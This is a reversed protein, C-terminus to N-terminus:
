RPNYILELTVGGYPETDIYVARGNGKATKWAASQSPPAGRATMQAIAADMDTVTLGLHHFGEGHKKGYEVYIDPGTIQQVWERPADGTRDWGLWMEYTGPQGRYIRDLMKAHDISAFPKFGLNTYYADVKRVDNIVWAYHDVKGLPYDNSASDQSDTARDPNYILGLTNGGGADATDLYAARGQGNHGEWNDDVVVGVGKQRFYAVQDNFEKGSKVEYSLVRIGDGHARLGDRWFRGGHVPQIWKIELTGIHGTVQKVTAPDPKGRYTLNKYHVTGDRHIDRVGLHEWFNSVRDVDKVVWVVQVVHRFVDQDLTPQDTAPVQGLAGAALPLSAILGLFLKSSHMRNV